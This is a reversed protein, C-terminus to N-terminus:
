RTALRKRLRSLSPPEIDLYQAIFKLPVRNFIYPHKELLQVYRAEPSLLKVEYLRQITSYFHKKQKVEYWSKLAPIESELKDFDVKSIVLIQCEEITQVYQSGAKSTHYSEFDGIWWDEFAFFLTHEKGDDDITFTRSCGKKIYTKCRTVQGATLYNFKSPIHFEQFHSVFYDFENDSMGMTNKFLIKFKDPIDSLDAKQPFM